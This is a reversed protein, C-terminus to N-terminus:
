SSAEAAQDNSNPINALTNSATEIRASLERMFAARPLGPPIAPLIEFVATGGHSPLGRAPWVLGTNLAVPVCPANLDRYIGAVGVKYDPPAGVDRRTGEPYIIIARKLAVAERAANMMKTLAGSGGERDIPIHKMGGVVWGYIPLSLLEKKLVFAPDKIFTWPAVTDLMSQHKSALIFGEAPLNETGRVEVRIGCILRAGFLVAHAWARVGVIVPWRGFLRLLLLGLGFFFICAYLWAGFLFSRIANM